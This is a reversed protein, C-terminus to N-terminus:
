LTFGEMFREIDSVRGSMMEGPDQSRIYVVLELQRAFVVRASGAMIADRIMYQLLEEATVKVARWNFGPTRMLEPMGYNYEVPLTVEIECKRSSIVLPLEITPQRLPSPSINSQPWTSPGSITGPPIFAHYSPLQSIVRRCDM